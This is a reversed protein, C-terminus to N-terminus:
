TMSAARCQRRRLVFSLRLVVDAVLGELLVSMRIRSVLPKVRMSSSITTAIM